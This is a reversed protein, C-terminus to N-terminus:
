TTNGDGVFVHKTQVFAFKEIVDDDIKVQFVNEVVNERGGVSISSEDEAGKEVFSERM